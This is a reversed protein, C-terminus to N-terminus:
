GAPLGYQAALAVDIGAAQAAALGQNIRQLMDADGQRVLIGFQESTIQPGVVKLEGPNATTVYFAAVPSDTVVADITGALLAAMAAGIDAFPQMVAGGIAAVADASTTDAIAGVTRGSLDAAANIDTQGSRVVIVQGANLYPTSFDFLAQREPTITVSSIIADVEGAALADFIDDWVINEFRVEFGAGQAIALMLDIDFGTFRGDVVSEMPPYSADTAVVLRVTQGSSCGICWAAVFCGMALCVRRMAM